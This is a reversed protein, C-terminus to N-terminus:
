FYLKGGRPNLDNTEFSWIGVLVVSLLLHYNRKKKEKQGCRLAHPVEGVLSPVRAGLLPLASTKAVPGGPFDVLPLKM